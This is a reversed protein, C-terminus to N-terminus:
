YVIRTADKACNFTLNSNANVEIACFCIALIYADIKKRMLM